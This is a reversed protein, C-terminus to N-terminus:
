IKEFIYLNDDLTKQLLLSKYMMPLHNGIGEGKFTHEWDILLTNRNFAVISNFREDRQKKDVKKLTTVFLHENTFPNDRMALFTIINYCDMMKSLEKFKCTNNFLNIEIYNSGYLGLLLQNEKDLVFNESDMIRGKYKDQSKPNIGPIESFIQIVKGTSKDLVFVTHKNDSFILKNDICGFYKGLKTEELFTSLDIDWILDLNNTDLLVIKEQSKHFLLGEKITGLSIYNQNNSKSLYECKKCDYIGLEWYFNRKERRWNMKGVVLKDTFTNYFVREKIQTKLNGDILFSNGSKDYYFVKKEPTLYFTTPEVNKCILKDNKLLSDDLSYYLNENKCDVEVRIISSKKEKLKYM